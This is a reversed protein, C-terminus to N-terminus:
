TKMAPKVEFVLRTRHFCVDFEHFFNIQGLILPINTAKTWAFAMRAAAFDGVTVKLILARAEHGGLNGTLSVRTTQSEWIAGLKSGLEFPLVNVTSGSDILGNATVVEGGEFQLSLPLLPM